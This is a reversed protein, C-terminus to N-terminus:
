QTRPIKSSVSFYDTSFYIDKEQSIYIYLIFINYEDIYIQIYMDYECVCVCVCVYIYIYIYIYIYTM